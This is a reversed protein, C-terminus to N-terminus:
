RIVGGTKKTQLILVSINSLVLGHLQNLFSSLQIREIM